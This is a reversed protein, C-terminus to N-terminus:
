YQHYSVTSILPVHLGVCKDPHNMAPIAHGMTSPNLIQAYSIRELMNLKQFTLSFFEKHTDSLNFTQEGLM